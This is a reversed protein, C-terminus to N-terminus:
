HLAHEQARTGVTAQTALATQELEAGLLRPRTRHVPRARHKLPDEQKRGTSERAVPRARHKLPKDQLLVM